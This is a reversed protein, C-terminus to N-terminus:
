WRTRSPWRDRLPRRRHRHHRRSRRFSSVGTEGIARDANLSMLRSPKPTDGAKTTTEPKSCSSTLFAIPECFQLAEHGTLLPTGMGLAAVETAPKGRRLVEEPAAKKSPVGITIIATASRSRRSRCGGIRSLRDPAESRSRLQVKRTHRAADVSAAQADSHHPPAPASGAYPRRCPSSRDARHSSTPGSM